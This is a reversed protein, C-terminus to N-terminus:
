QQSYWDRLHESDVAEQPEPEPIEDREDPSLCYDCIVAENLPGWWTGRRFTKTSCLEETGGCRACELYDDFRVDGDQPESM